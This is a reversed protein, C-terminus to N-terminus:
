RRSRRGRSSACGTTRGTPWSSSASSPTRALVRPGLGLGIGAHGQRLVGGERLHRGASVAAPPQQRPRVRLDSRRELARRLAGPQPVAAGAAGESRLKRAQHRRAQQRLRGLLAEDQRYRRRAGGRAQQYLRGRYLGRQNESRGLDQRRARLERSRPQRRGQRARRGAAPVQRGQHVQPRARGERRQRRDLRQGQLRHPHRPEIAAVRLGAGARGVIEGSQRGSRVGAGAAGRPLVRCDASQARRGERQQALTASSRHIIWIHDQDDAWVGIAMGLLGSFPKPWFPDVEFMPAQVNGRQAEAKNELVAQGIGLGVIAAVLVAGSVYKRQQILKIM